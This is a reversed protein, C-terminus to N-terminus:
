VVSKRDLGAVLAQGYSFLHDGVWAMPLYSLVEDQDSFGDHEIDGRAAAMLAAHTLCVGKPRSTTGSTYLIVCVDDPRGAAVEQEFFGPNARDFDIGQQRVADYAILEPRNYNRLGRPDDYIIHRLRPCQPLLELLKDVQEQDEVIAFEIEANDLVFRMEEAIADQYIPVPVGG